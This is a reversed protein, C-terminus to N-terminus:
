RPAALSRSGSEVDGRVLARDLLSPAASVDGCQLVLCRGPERRSGRLRRQAAQLSGPLGLATSRCPLVGLSSLFRLVRLCSLGDGLPHASGTRRSRLTRPDLRARASVMVTSRLLVSRRESWEEPDLWTRALTAFVHPADILIAWSGVVLLGLTLPLTAGFLELRAFPDRIPDSLGRGLALVMLLYLWGALSSGIYWILDAPASHLFRFRVRESATAAM